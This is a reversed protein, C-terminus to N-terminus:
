LPSWVLSVSLELSDAPYLRYTAADPSVWLEWVQKGPSKDLGGSLSAKNLIQGM